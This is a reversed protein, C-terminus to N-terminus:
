LNRKNLLITSIAIFFGIYGLALVVTIGVSLGLINIISGSKQKGLNRLAIKLYYGLM